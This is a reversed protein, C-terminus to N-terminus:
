TLCQTDGNRRTRRSAHGEPPRGPPTGTCGVYTYGAEPLLDGWEGSPPMVPPSLPTPPRRMDPVPFEFAPPQWPPLLPLAAEDRGVLTVQQDLPGDAAPGSEEFPSSRAIPGLDDRAPRVVARGPQGSSNWLRVIVAKGDRSPKLSNLLVTESVIALPPRVAAAEPAVAVALLPQSREIGRRATATADFPGHLWIAHRFAHPGDVPM